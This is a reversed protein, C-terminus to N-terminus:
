PLIQRSAQVACPPRASGVMRSSLRGAAVQAAVRSRADCPAAAVMAAETAEAAWCCTKRNRRRFRASPSPRLAPIFPPCASSSPAPPNLSASPEAALARASSASCAASRSCCSAPRGQIHLVEAHLKKTHFILHTSKSPLEYGQRSHGGKGSGPVHIKANHDQDVRTELCCQPGGCVSQTSIWRSAIGHIDGINNSHKVHM